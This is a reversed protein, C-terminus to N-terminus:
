QKQFLRRVNENIVGLTQSLSNGLIVVSKEIKELKSYTDYYDAVGIPVKSIACRIFFVKYNSFDPSEESLEWRFGGCSGCKSLM